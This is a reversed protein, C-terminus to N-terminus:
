AIQAQESTLQKKQKVGLSLPCFSSAHHDAYFTRPFTQPMPLQLFYKPMQYSLGISIV